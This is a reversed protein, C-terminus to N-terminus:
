KKSNVLQELFMGIRELHSNMKSLELLISPSYSSVNHSDSSSSDEELDEEVTKTDINTETVYVSEDIINDNPKVVEVSSVPTNILESVRKRLEEPVTLKQEEMYVDMNTDSMASNCSVCIPIINKPEVPGGNAHSIVHGGQSTQLTIEKKGCCYCNAFAVNGYIDIWSTKKLKAPINKRINKKFGKDFLATLLHSKKTGTSDLGRNYEKKNTLKLIARIHDATLGTEVKKRDSEDLDHWGIDAIQKETLENYRDFNNKLLKERLNKSLRSLGDRASTIDNVSMNRIGMM